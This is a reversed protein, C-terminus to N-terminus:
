TNPATPNLIDLQTRVSEAHLTELLRALFQRDLGMACGRGLLATLLRTYRDPQVVPMDHARKYEGIERSVSMRQALLELIQTDIEDIRSRLAGLTAGNGTSLTRYKLESLVTALAAPTLQQGGDSLAAEPAPHTEIMLGSFGMDMARQSLPLIHDRSGGTHSPDHIISLSPLRRHLEMPIQWIPANRYPASKYVAFGRHIAGLHHVGANLLRALAGIWLDIDPSVPNKVLVTKDPCVRSIAEALAQVAFPNAVTRAGIWFIDIGASYAATVHEPTAVETATLLGTIKKAECLWQLAEHGKGEFTGPITRPKWAGARLIIDRSMAALARATDKLQAPSEASCPGAIIIRNKYLPLQLPELLANCRMDTETIQSM